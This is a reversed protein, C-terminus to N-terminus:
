ILGSISSGCKRIRGSEPQVCMPRLADSAPLRHVPSRSRGDPAAGGLGAALMLWLVASRLDGQLPISALTTAIAAARLALSGRGVPRRRLLHFVIGAMLISGPLGLDLLVTLWFSDIGVNAEVRGFEPSMWDPLYFAQTGVGCGLLSRPLNWRWFELAPRERSVQLLDDFRSFRRLVRERSFFWWVPLLTILAVILRVVRSVRRKPAMWFLMGVVVPLILLLSSSFTLMAATLIILLQLVRSGQQGGGRAFVVQWGLFAIAPTAFLAFDKPERCFSHVRLLEVSGVQVTAFEVFQGLIGARYIPTIPTRALLWAAEQLLGYCALAFMSGCYWRLCSLAEETSRVAGLIYVFLALRLLLMGVSVSLREFDPRSGTMGCTLEGSMLQWAWHGLALAGLGAAFLLPTRNKSSLRVQTLVLPVFLLGVKFLDLEWKTSVYLGIWPATAFLSRLYLRRRTALLGWGALM